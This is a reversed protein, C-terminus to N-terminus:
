SPHGTSSAPGQNPALPEAHPLIRVSTQGLVNGDLVAQVQHDGGVDALITTEFPLTGDGKTAVTAIPARQDDWGQGSVRNSVVTQWPLSILQNPQLGVGRITVDSGVPRLTLAPGAM